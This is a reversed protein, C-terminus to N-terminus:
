VTTGIVAPDECSPGRRKSATAQRHDVQRHPAMLRETVLVPRNPNNQIALDVVEFRKSGFKLFEAM